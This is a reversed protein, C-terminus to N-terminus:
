QNCHKVNIITQAANFEVLKPLLTQFQQVGIIVTIQKM